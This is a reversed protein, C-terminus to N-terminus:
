HVIEADAPDTFVLVSEDLRHVELTGAWTEYVEGAVILLDRGDITLTIRALTGEDFVVKVADVHGIALDLKRWRFIGYCDDPAPRGTSELKLGFYGDDQYICIVQEQADTTLRLWTLQLFDVEPDAFQPGEPSDDRLAMEVGDWASVTTGALAEFAEQQRGLWADM